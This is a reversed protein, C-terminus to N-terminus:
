APQGIVKTFVRFDVRTRRETGLLWNIHQATVNFVLAAQGREALALTDDDSWQLGDYFDADVAQEQRNYAHHQRTETWWEQLKALRRRYLESDLVNAKTPARSKGYGTDFRDELPIIEASQRYNEFVASL